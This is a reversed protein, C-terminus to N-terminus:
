KRIRIINWKDLGLKMSKVFGALYGDSVDQSQNPYQHSVCWLAGSNALIKETDEESLMEEEKLTIFRSDAKCIAKVLTSKGSHHLGFIILNSNLKALEKVIEQLKADVFIDESRIIKMSKCYESLFFFLGSQM